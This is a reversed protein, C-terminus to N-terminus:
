YFERYFKALDLFKLSNVLKEASKLTPIKAIRIGIRGGMVIDVWAEIRALWLLFFRYFIMLIYM